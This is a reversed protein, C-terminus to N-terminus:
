TGTSSVGSPGMNSLLAMARYPIVENGETERQHV